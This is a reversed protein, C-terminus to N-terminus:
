RKTPTPRSRGTDVEEDDEQKYDDENLAKREAEECAEKRVELENLVNDYSTILVELANDSIASLGSM